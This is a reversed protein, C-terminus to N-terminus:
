LTIVIYVLGTMIIFFSYLFSYGGLTYKRYYHGHYSTSNYLDLPLEIVIPQHCLDPKVVGADAFFTNVRSFNTFVQDLSNDNLLCTSTYISDCNLKSYFYCNRLPLGRECDNNPASFDGILLVSHNETDLNKELSCFYKYM